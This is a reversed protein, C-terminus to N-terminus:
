DTIELMKDCFPELDNSLETHDKDRTDIGGRIVYNPNHWNTATERRSFIGWREPGTKAAKTKLKEAYPIVDHYYRVLGAAIREEKAMEGGVFLLAMDWGWPDPIENELPM